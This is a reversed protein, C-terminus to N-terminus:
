VNQQGTLQKLLFPEYRDGRQQIQQAFNSLYGISRQIEGRRNVQYDILEAMEATLHHPIPFRFDSPIEEVYGDWWQGFRNLNFGIQQELMLLQLWVETRAEADANGWHISNVTKCRVESLNVALELYLMATSSRQNVPALQVFEKIQGYAYSVLTADMVGYFPLSRPAVAKPKAAELSALHQQEAEWIKLWHKIDQATLTWTARLQSIVEDCFAKHAAIARKQTTVDRLLCLALWFAGATSQGWGFEKTESSPEKPIPLPLTQSSHKKSVTTSQSGIYHTVKSSRSITSIYRKFPTKV